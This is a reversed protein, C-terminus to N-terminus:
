LRDALGADAVSGLETLGSKQSKVFKGALNKRKKKKKKKSGGEGEEYIRMRDGKALEQDGGGGGVAEYGGVGGGVGM